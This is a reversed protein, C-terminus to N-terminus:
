VLIRLTSLHWSRNQLTSLEVVRRGLM